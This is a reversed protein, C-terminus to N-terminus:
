CNYYGPADHHPSALPSVRHPLFHTLMRLDPRSRLPQRQLFAHLSLACSDGHPMHPRRFAPTAGEQSEIKGSRQLRVYMSEIALPMWDFAGKMDVSWIVSADHKEHNAAAVLRGDYQEEELKFFNSLRYVKVKDRQQQQTQTRARALNDAAPREDVVGPRSSILVCGAGILTWRWRYWLGRMLCLHWM